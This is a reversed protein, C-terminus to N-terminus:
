KIIIGTDKNIPGPIIKKDKELIKIKNKDDTKQEPQNKMIEDNKFIINDAKNQQFSKDLIKMSQDSQTQNTNFKEDIPTEPKFPKDMVDPEPIKNESEITQKSLEPNLNERTPFASKTFNNMPSENVIESELMDSFDGNAREKNIDIKFTDNVFEALPDSKIKASKTGMNYGIVIGVICMLFIFFFFGRKVSEITRLSMSDILRNISIILSTLIKLVPNM